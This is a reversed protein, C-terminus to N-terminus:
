RDLIPPESLRREVFTSKDVATMSLLLCEAKLRFPTQTYPKCVFYDGYRQIIAAQQAVSISFNTKLRAVIHGVALILLCLCALLVILKARAIGVLFDILHMGPALAPTGSAAAAPGLTSIVFGYLAHVSIFVAVLAM